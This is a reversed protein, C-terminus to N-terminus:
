IELAKWFCLSSKLGITKVRAITRQFNSFGNSSWSGFQSSMKPTHPNMVECEGVNEPAHFTVGM